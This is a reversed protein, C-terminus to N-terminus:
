FKASFGFFIASIYRWLRGSKAHIPPLQPRPAYDVLLSLPWLGERGRPDCFLPWKLQGCRKTITENSKCAQGFSPLNKCRKEEKLPFCCNGPHRLLPLQPHSKSFRCIWRPDARERYQAQEWKGIYPMGTALAGHCCQLFSCINNTPDKYINQLHTAFFLLAFGLIASFWFTPEYYSSWIGFEALDQNLALVVFVSCDFLSLSTNRKGVRSRLSSCTPYLTEKWNKGWWVLCQM